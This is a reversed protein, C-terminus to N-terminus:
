SLYLVLVEPIDGWKVGFVVSRFSLSVLGGGVVVGPPNQAALYM